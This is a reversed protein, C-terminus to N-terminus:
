YVILTVIFININEFAKEDLFHRAHFSSIGYSELYLRTFASLKYYEVGM